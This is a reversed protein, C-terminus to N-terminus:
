PLVEIDTHGAFWAHLPEGNRGDVDEVVVHTTFGGGILGDPAYTRIPWNEPLEAPVTFPYDGIQRQEVLTLRGETRPEFRIRQGILEGDLQHAKLTDSM